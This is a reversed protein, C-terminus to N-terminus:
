LSPDYIHQGLIASFLLLYLAHTCFPVALCCSPASYVVDKFCAKIDDLTAKKPTPPLRSTTVLSAITGLFLILFACTRMTWGFGVDDIMERVILPFIVGGIGSGSAALGVAVGRKERFWTMTCTVSPYFLMATGIGSCLGQSLIFQYYKTALSAMFVGFAHM